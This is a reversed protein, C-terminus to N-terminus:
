RGKRSQGQILQNPVNVTKCSITDKSKEERATRETNYEAEHFIAIVADNTIYRKDIQSRKFLM